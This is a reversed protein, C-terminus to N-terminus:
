LDALLREVLRDFDVTREFTGNALAARAAEVAEARVEPGKRMEEAVSAVFRADDSLSVQTGRHARDAGEPQRPEPGVPVIPTTPLTPHPGGVPHIKM